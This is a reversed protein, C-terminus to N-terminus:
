TRDLTIIFKLAHVVLVLKVWKGFIIKKGCRVIRDPGIDTYRAWLNYAEDDDVFVTAWLRNKDLKWVDTFLEWAWSIAEKKYYNGFSWNGLMEFFTHHFTDVGVEELDNHKGSVRICKQSNVARPTDPKVDDLFVPKFQNMGANTFLLSPDNIPVSPSSRVFTHGRDKFYDIFSNRIDKSKMILVFFSTEISTLNIKEGSDDVDGDGNLDLFSRRFIYNLIMGNGMEIGIRYGMITSETYKFEFPNPVNRQQYFWKATKIKSISKKLRITGTFSQNTEEEFKEGQWQDGRLNQYSLGSVLISGIDVTLRSFYGRQPGYKGLKSSKSIIENEEGMSSFTAREIEYSRNFYGFEFKGVPMMRYEWSFKAPGFNATLGLPTIGLGLDEFQKRTTDILYEPNKTKGILAALQAYFHVSLGGDSFLPRGFDIAFAHVSENQKNVDIPEPKRYVGDTDITIGFESTFEPDTLGDGDVDYENDADDALGDGDTDLWYTKDDPFDDVLDPRGDGDRDKLGLYQNRDLGYSVGMTIGM